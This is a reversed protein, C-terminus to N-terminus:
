EEGTGADRALYRARLAREARALVTGVSSTRIGVAAAIEAYSVGSYRLILVTRDREPLEALAQRVRAAADRREVEAAPNPPESALPRELRAWRLVRDRLRRRARTANFGLNTAVRYLWGALNADSEPPIPRQYLRLFVEQTLDEAEDPSGTIRLLVGYVTPYYRRLVEAFADDDGTQLAQVLAGDSAASAHPVSM